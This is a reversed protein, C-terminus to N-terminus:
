PQSDDPTSQVAGAREARLPFMLLLRLDFIAHLVVPLVLSGTTLYFSAFLGGLVATAIIGQVGQYFHLLGFVVSTLAAIAILNLPPLLVSLYYILFGRIWLEESVGAGISVAAYGARERRTEPVFLKVWPTERLKQAKARLLFSPIILGVCVGVLMALTFSWSKPLVLGLRAAPVDGLRWIAVVVAIIIAQEVLILRYWRMRFRPVNARMQRLARRLAYRGWWPSILVTYFALAHALWASV